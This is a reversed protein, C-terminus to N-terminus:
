ARLGPVFRIALGAVLGSALLVTVLLALPVIERNLWLLVLGGAVTGSTLVSFAVAQVRRRGQLAVAAVFGTLALIFVVTRLRTENIDELTRGDMIAALSQAHVLVGLMDADSTMTMPTPHRDRGPFDGGVLVVRGALQEGLVMALLGSEDRAAELVAHADVILFTEGEDPQDLWDIRRSSAIETVGAAQAIAAAFSVDYPSDAAPAARYRIIPDGSAEQADYQLNLYGVPRGARALFDSQYARGQESLTYRRDAAGLVVPVSAERLATILGEDKDPETRRDFLFDLAIVRPGLSALAALLEAMLGRDIPSVYPLGELTTENIVVVAIDPHEGALATAAFNVQVDNSTEILQVIQQPMWNPTLLQTSFQGPVLAIGAAVMAAYAFGVVLGFVNRQLAPASARDGGSSV